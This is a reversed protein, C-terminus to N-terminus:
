RTDVAAALEQKSMTSRGAIEQETALARLEEATLREREEVTPFGERARRADMRQGVEERFEADTASRVSPFLEQEEEDIHHEVSEILVVGKAVWEEDEPAMAEMEEVLVDAVHHEQLGEDVTEGIEASLDHVAPYFVEEEIATHIRLDEALHRFLSAMGATDEAEQAARFRTFTGRFRNHDAILLDLCDM